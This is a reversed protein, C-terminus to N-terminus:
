ALAPDRFAVLLRKVSEWLREDNEMEDGLHRNLHGVVLLTAARVNGPVAVTGDSWGAVAREDLYTLVIDSAQEVKEFIDADRNNHNIRLHDKAQQLTVLTAM